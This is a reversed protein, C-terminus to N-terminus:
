NRRAADFKSDNVASQTPRTAGASTTPKATWNQTLWYPYETRVSGGLDKLVGGLIRPSIGRNPVVRQLVFRRNSPIYAFFKGNGIEDNRALLRLLATNPVDTSSKPLEDLWAMVWLSEGNKSLVASMTLDWEQEEYKTKFRFDYRSEAKEPQLGLSTLAQGLSDETLPGAVDQAAAMNSVGLWAAVLATLIVSYRTTCDTLSM